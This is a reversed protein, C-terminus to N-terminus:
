NDVLKAHAGPHGSKLLATAAAKAASQTSFRGSFVVWYGPIWLPQHSSDIVGASVGTRAVRTAAAYARAESHTHALVVTWGSLGGPWESIVTLGATHASAQKATGTSSGGSLSNLLVIFGAVAIVVVVTVVAVPVWWNPTGHIVTTATGCEVCWEQDEALQAHCHPCYRQRGVDEPAGSPPDATATM